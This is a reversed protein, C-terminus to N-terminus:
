LKTADGKTRYRFMIKGSLLSSHYTSTNKQDLLIELVLFCRIPQYPRHLEPLFTFLNPKSKLSTMLVAYWCLLFTNYVSWLTTKLSQIWLLLRTFSNYWSRLQKQFACVTKQMKIENNEKCEQKTNQEEQQVEMFLNSHQVTQLCQINGEIFRM